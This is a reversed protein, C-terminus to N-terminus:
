RNCSAAPPRMQMTVIEGSYSSDSANMSFSTRDFMTAALTPATPVYALNMPDDMPRCAPMLVDRFLRLGEHAGVGLPSVAHALEALLETAPDAGWQPDKPLRLREIAYGIVAHAFLDTEGTWTHM